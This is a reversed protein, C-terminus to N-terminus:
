QRPRFQVAISQLKLKLNRSFPIEIYYTVLSALGIVIPLCIFLASIWYNFHFHKTMIPIIFGFSILQHILYLAFSIKGLFLTTKSVIFGLKDNVFLVFLLFYIFLM